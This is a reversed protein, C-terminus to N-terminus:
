PGEEPSGVRAGEGPRAELVRLVGPASALADRARAVDAPRVLVKVHPGADITAYAATGARRLARVAELADLTGGNWYVVGAAVASAHMALASAEALEGLRDFDRAELAGRLSEHLRPAHDLWAVAFPSKAMTTRMGDTSGVAKAGEATVAVLVALPLANSPALPRACLLDEERADIPAAPLEVFGGFISRAASASGRRALDSIRAADWGGVRLQVAALALAAFGSASSALGSATPFDNRSEVEAWAEVGAARRVRELLALARTTEERALERGGLVVRDTGAGAHWRVRTRTTLGALTVSLSPVAPANGGTERKGWYKSLAVNPHAVAVAEALIM